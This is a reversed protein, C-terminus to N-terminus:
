YLYVKLLTIAVILLVVWVIAYWKHNKVRKYARIYSVENDNDQTVVEQKARYEIMSNYFDTIGYCSNLIVRVEFYMAFLFILGVPVALGLEQPPITENFVEWVGMLMMWFGVLMVLLHYTGILADCAKQEYLIREICMTKRLTFMEWAIVSFSLARCAIVAGVIVFWISLNGM